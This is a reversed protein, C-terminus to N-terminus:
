GYHIDVRFPVIPKKTNNAFTAVAFKKIKKLQLAMQFQILAFTHDDIMNV